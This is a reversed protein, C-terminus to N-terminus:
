LFLFRQNAFQQLTNRRFSARIPSARDRAQGLHRTFVRPLVRTRRHRHSRGRPQRPALSLLRHVGRFRHACVSLLQTL